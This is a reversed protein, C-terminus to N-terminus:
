LAEPGEGHDGDGQERPRIERLYTPKEDEPSLGYPREIGITRPRRDADDLEAPRKNTPPM